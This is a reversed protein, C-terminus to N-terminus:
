RGTKNKGIKNETGNLLREINAKHRLLALFTLIITFIFLDINFSGILLSSVLPTLALFTLFGLSAYKSSFVVILGIGMSIIATPFNIVLLTGFSTAIGKGGKFKMFVSWDHGIVVFIGAILGGIYGMLKMGILVAVIGKIIDLAGILYGIKRGLVRVSNTAGANGSGYNRVDINKLAKGVIYSFSFSGIIYAILCNVIVTM